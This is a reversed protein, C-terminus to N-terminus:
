GRSGGKRAAGSKGKKAGAAAGKGSKAAGSKPAEFPEFVSTEDRKRTTTYEKTTADACKACTHTDVADFSDEVWTTVKVSKDPQEEREEKDTSGTLTEARDTKSRSFAAGCKACLASKAGSKFSARHVLYGVGLAVIIAGGYRLADGQGGLIWIALLGAIAGVVGGWIMASKQIAARKEEQEHSLGPMATGKITAM